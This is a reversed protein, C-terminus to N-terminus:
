TGTTKILMSPFRALTSKRISAKLVRSIKAKQELSLLYSRFQENKNNSPSKTKIEKFFSM